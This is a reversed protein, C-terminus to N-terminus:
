RKQLLEELMLSMAAAADRITQLHGSVGAGLEAGHDEEIVQVFAGIHRLPARLDHVVKVTLQDVRQRLAAVEAQLQRNEAQVALWQGGPEGAKGM